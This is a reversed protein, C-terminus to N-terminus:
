ALYITLDVTYDTDTDTLILLHKNPYLLDLRAKTNNVGIGGPMEEEYFRRLKKNAVNMSLKEHDVRIAVRIISREQPNVGYKFANEIFSILILPTIKRGGPTGTIIADIQVTEDLRLKQLSIYHSIYELEKALPVQEGQADRIVYRMLASLQVIAEPTSDSKEIALSYITNLTNFLFHPNIQAKLYSLEANLKEQRTRRLRNNVQLALSGFVGVLFLFLSHSLEFGVPPKHKEDAPDPFPPREPYQDGGAPPQHMHGHTLEVIPSLVTQRDVLFLLGFIIGFCVAVSIGYEWIREQFYFRPILIYYHIYFFALMLLYSLFNTLEHPNAAIHRVQGLGNPAFIYPLALFALGFGIHLTIFQVRSKMLAM